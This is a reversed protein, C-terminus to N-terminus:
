FMEMVTATVKMWHELRQNWMSSWWNGTIEKATAALQFNPRPLNSLWIISSEPDDLASIAVNITSQSKWPSIFNQQQQKKQMM